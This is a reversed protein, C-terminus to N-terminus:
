RLGAAVAKLTADQELLTRARAAERSDPAEVIQQRLHRIGDEVRGQKLVVLALHYHICYIGPKRRYADTLRAYAEDTRGAHYLAWGYTDLADADDPEMTVAREAWAVAAAPDGVGSEIEVWALGNYLGATAMGGALARQYADRAERFRGASELRLGYKYDRSDLYSRYTVGLGALIAVATIAYGVTRRHRRLLLGLGCAIGAAAAMLDAAEVSRNPVWIQQIEDLVAVLGTVAIAALTATRDSAVVTRAVVRVFLVIACSQVFHLLKDVGPLYLLLRDLQQGGLDELVFLAALGGVGALALLAVRRNM